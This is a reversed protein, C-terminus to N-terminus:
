NEQGRNANAEPLHLHRLYLRLLHLQRHLSNGASQGSCAFRHLDVTSGRDTQFVEGGKNNTTTMSGSIFQNQQSCFPPFIFREEIRSRRMNIKIISSFMESSEQPIFNHTKLVSLTNLRFSKSCSRPFNKDSFLAKGSILLLNRYFFLRM